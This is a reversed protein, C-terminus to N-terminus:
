EPSLQRSSRYIRFNSESRWEEGVKPIWKDSTIYLALQGTKANIMYAGYGPTYALWMAGIMDPNPFSTKYPPTEPAEVLVYPKPVECLAVEIPEPLYQRVDKCFRERSVAFNQRHQDYDITPPQHVPKRWDWLVASSSAVLSKCSTM